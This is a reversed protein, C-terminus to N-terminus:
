PHLAGRGAVRRRRGAAARGHGGEVRRPGDIDIADPTPVWGIPTDEAEAKGAVRDFVWELVRSNEGYGPWLWKGTPTRASGTSTSSRPCSTATPAGRRHRALPRLLRGHQLRLVAAHRLPRPAPQGVAGAAAATTESAMISGLFVGHDWDLSQFVLPVVSAAAAASSSPRSRCARPTRGSPPSPRTRPPRRPSAPTPTPPRRARPRADLGPGELRDPAGPPEDTM